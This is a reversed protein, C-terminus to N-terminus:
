LKFLLILGCVVSCVIMLWGFGVSIWMCMLVCCFIYGIIGGFVVLVLIIFFYVMCFCYLLMMRFSVM